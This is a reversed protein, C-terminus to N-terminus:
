VPDVVPFVLVHYFWPLDVLFSFVPPWAVGIDGFLAFFILVVSSGGLFLLVSSL